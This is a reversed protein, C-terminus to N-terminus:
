KLFGSIPWSVAFNLHDDILTQHHILFRVSQVAIKNEHITKLLGQIIMLKTYTADQKNFPDKNLSLFLEKSSTIAASVVQIDKEIIKEDELLMLWNNTVTKVNQATDSSWILNVIEKHWQKHKFFFIVVDHHQIDQDISETQHDAVAYPPVFIIWEKQYAYMVIGVVFSLTVLNLATIYKM